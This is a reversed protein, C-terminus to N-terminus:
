SEPVPLLAALASDGSRGSDGAGGLAALRADYQDLSPRSDSAPLASALMKFAAFDLGEDEDAAAELLVDEIAANVEAEPLKARLAELMETPKLRGDGDADM